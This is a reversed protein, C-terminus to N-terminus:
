AKDATAKRLKRHSKLTTQKFEGLMRSVQKRAETRGDTFDLNLEIIVQIYEDDKKEVRNRAIDFLPQAIISKALNEQRVESPPM